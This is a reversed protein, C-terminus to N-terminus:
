KVKQMATQLIKGDQKKDYVYTLIYCQDANYTTDLTMTKTMEFNDALYVSGNAILSGGSGNLTGRFVNRFVYEKDVGGSVTQWGVISDEVLCSTVYFEGDIDTEPSVTTEVTLLRSSEEYTNQIYIEFSQPENLANDVPTDIQEVYLTNGDTLAVHDVAFLPNSSNGNYWETGEDTTFDPFQGMPQALFGAHVSMIFIREEGLQHQLAHAYEAAEPCNVCRAGTFDKILVTKGGGTPTYPKHTNNIDIKDCGVSALMLAAVAIISLIRNMTM